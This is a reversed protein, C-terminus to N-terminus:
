DSNGARRRETAVRPSIMAYGDGEKEAKWGPLMFPFAENLAPCRTVSHGAKGCSFCVVTAWDRQIPGPRPRPTPAPNGSLLTKFLTELGSSGAPAAPVPQRIPTGVLLRQLLQEM